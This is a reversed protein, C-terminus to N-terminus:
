WPAWFWLLAPKGQLDGFALQGGDATPAAAADSAPTAAPDDNGCAAVTLSLMAVLAALVLFTRSGHRADPSPDPRTVGSITGDASAIGPWSRPGKGEPGTAGLSSRPM